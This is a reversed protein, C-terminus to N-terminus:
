IKEKRKRRKQNKLLKDYEEIPIIAYGDLQVRTIKDYNFTFLCENTDTRPIIFCNKIYSPKIM